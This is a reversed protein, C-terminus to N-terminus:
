RWHGLPMDVTRQREAASEVLARARELDEPTNVNLFSILEPDWCRVTRAPVTRLRLSGLLERLSREGRALAAEVAELTSRRYLGPLPEVRDGPRCVIADVEERRQALLGRLLDGTLFPQDCAVVLAWELSLWRLLAQFGALPGTDEVEDRVIAATHATLPVPQQPRLVLVVDLGASRLADVAHRILTRGDVELSLKDSGMRRGRGGALVAGVVDASM